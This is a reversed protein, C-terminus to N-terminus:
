TGDVKVVHLFGETGMTCSELHAAPDIEALYNLFLEKGQRFNFVSPAICDATTIINSPGRVTDNAEVTGIKKHQIIM